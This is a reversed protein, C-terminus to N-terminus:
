VDSRFAIMGWLWCAGIGLAAGAVDAYWDTIDSSRGPVFFQHIEDFAGYAGAIALALGAVRFAVRCPLGGGVARVALIALGAYAAVHGSKDSVQEPLTVTPLDSVFYIAAM